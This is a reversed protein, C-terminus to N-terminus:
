NHFKHEAQLDRVQVLLVYAAEVCGENEEDVGVLLFLQTGHKLHAVYKTPPCHFFTFFLLLQTEAHGSQSGQM